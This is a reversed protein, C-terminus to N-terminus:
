RVEARSVTARWYDLVDSLTRRLDFTPAWGSRAALFAGSGHFEPVDLPRLLAADVEVRIAVSSLALLTDLLDRIRVRAGSTVNFVDGPEGRLLAALYGQVTDRVDSLDRVAELNGVRVVPEQLGAEIRAVQHAFAAAVFADSQRPGIHNFARAVVVHLGRAVAHHAHMEACAKSAAYLTGPRLPHVEVVPLNAPDVRGYVEASSVLLVRVHAHGALCADLLNRTGDVNVALCTDPDSEAQAVHAVGALHFIADPRQATLVDWCADGDTVDLEASVAGGPLAEPLARDSAVVEHGAALLAEVLHSGAFGRAGTVLARM